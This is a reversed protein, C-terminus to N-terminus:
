LQTPPLKATTANSDSSPKKDSQLSPIALIKSFEKVKGSKADRLVEAEIWVGPRFHSLMERAKLALIREKGRGLWRIKEYGDRVSLVRGIERSLIPRRAQYEEVDILQLLRLWRVTDEPLMEWSRLAFLRQFEKHVDDEFQKRAERFNAGRGMFDPSFGDVWFEGVRNVLSPTFFARRMVKLVYVAEGAEITRMEVESAPHPNRDAHAPRYDGTIPSGSYITPSHITDLTLIM